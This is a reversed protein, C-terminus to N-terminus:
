TEVDKVVGAEISVLKLGSNGLVLRSGEDDSGGLNVLGDNISM